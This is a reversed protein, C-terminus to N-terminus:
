DKRQPDTVIQSSRKADEVMKQSRKRHDAVKKAYNLFELTWYEETAKMQIVGFILGSLLSFLQVLFKTLDFMLASSGLSITGLLTFIFITIGKKKYQLGLWERPARAEDTLQMDVEELIRLAELYNKDSQVNVKAQKIFSHFMLVNIAASCLNVTSWVIWGAATDPFEFQLGIESGLMPLFFLMVISILAIIAYYLYQTTIKGILNM